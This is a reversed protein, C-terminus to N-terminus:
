KKELLRYHIEYVFGSDHIVVRYEMGSKLLEKILTDRELDSGVYRVSYSLWPSPSSCLLLLLALLAYKM